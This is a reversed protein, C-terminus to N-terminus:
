LSRGYGDVIMLMLVLGMMTITVIKSKMFAGRHNSRGTTSGTAGRGERGRCSYVISSGPMESKKRPKMMMLENGDEEDVDDESDDKDYTAGRGRGGIIFLVAEPCERSKIRTVMRMVIVLITIMISVVMM